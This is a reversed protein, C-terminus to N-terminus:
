SNVMKLIGLVHYKTFGPLSFIINFKFSGVHVESVYKVVEDINVFFGSSRIM